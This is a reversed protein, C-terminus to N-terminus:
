ERAAVYNLEDFVLVGFSASERRPENQRQRGSGTM